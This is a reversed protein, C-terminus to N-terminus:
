YVGVVSSGDGHVLISTGSTKVVRITMDPDSLKVPITFTEHHKSLEIDFPQTAVVKGGNLVEIRGKSRARNVHGDCAFSATKDTAGGRTSCATVKMVLHGQFDAPASMQFDSSSSVPRSTWKARGTYPEGKAKLPTPTGTSVQIANYQGKWKETPYASRVKVVCDGSYPLYKVTTQGAITNYGGSYPNLRDSCSVLVYTPLAPATSKPDLTIVIPITGIGKVSRISTATDTRAHITTKNSYHTTKEPAKPAPKTEAPPKPTSPAAERAPRASDSPKPAEPTSSPSPKPSSTSTSSEPEDPASTPTSSSETRAEERASKEPSMSEAPEVPTSQETVAREVDVPEPKEAEAAVKYSETSGVVPGDGRAEPAVSPGETEEVPVPAEAREAAVVEQQPTGSESELKDSYLPYMGVVVIAILSVIVLVVRLAKGIQDTTM